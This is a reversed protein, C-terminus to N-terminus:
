RRPQQGGARAQLVEEGLRNIQDRLAKAADETKSNRSASKVNDVSKKIGKDPEKEHPKKDKGESTAKQSQEFKELDKKIRQM